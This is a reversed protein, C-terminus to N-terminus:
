GSGKSLAASNDKAAAPLIRPLRVRFNAGQGPTSTVQITGGHQQIINRALFLGLGTGAQGKSSYFLNFISKRTQEDMGVGNDQIDFIIHGNERGVTFEIRHSKGSRDEICAEIANEIINTIATGAVAADVEFAGAASDFKKIFEIPHNQFKPAVVAVIDEAFDAVPMRKWELAREKAYYLIDMVLNRIRDVM